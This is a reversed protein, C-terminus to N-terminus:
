AIATDLLPKLYDPLADAGDPAGNPPSAPTLGRLDAQTDPLIDPDAGDRGAVLDPRNSAGNVLPFTASVPTTGPAGCAAPVGTAANVNDPASGAAVNTQFQVTANGLLADVPVDNGSCPAGSQFRCPLVNSGFHQLMVDPMPASSTAPCVGSPCDINLQVTIDPTAYHDTGSMTVHFEILNNFPDARAPPAPSVTAALVMAVFAAIGFRANLKMSGGRPAGRRAM